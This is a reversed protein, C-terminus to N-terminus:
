EARVTTEQLVIAAITTQIETEATLITEETQTLAIEVAIQLPIEMEVMAIIIEEQHATAITEIQITAPTLMEEQTLMEETLITDMEEIQIIGTQLVGLGATDAMDLMVEQRITTTESDVIFHLTDTTIDVDTSGTQFDLLLILM